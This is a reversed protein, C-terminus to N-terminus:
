HGARLREPSLLVGNNVVWRVDAVRGLDPRPDAAIFLIDAELGPRLAGTREALGLIRAADSSAMCLVAWAPIGAEQHLAMERAVSIGPAIFPNAQDTGITMPVGGEHMMRTLLQLLRRWVAWARAHDQPRWGADFRFGGRWNAVM